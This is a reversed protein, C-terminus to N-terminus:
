AENPKAGDTAPCPQLGNHRTENTMKPAMTQSTCMRQGALIRYVRPAFAVIDRVSDHGKRRFVELAPVLFRSSRGVSHQFRQRRLPLNM